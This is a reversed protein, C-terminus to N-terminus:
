TTVLEILVWYQWREDGLKNFMGILLKPGIVRNLVVTKWKELHRVVKEANEIRSVLGGDSVNIDTM